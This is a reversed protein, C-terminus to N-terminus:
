EPLSVARLRKAATEPSVPNTFIGSGMEFGAIRSIRPIIAVYWHYHPVDAEDTPASRISLNFDPDGVGERLRMLMRALVTALDDIEADTIADFSAAHREPFIWQHYPTLAGFPVFGAFAGSDEVIREGSRREDALVECFLCRGVEARFRHGDEMRMRVQPPVIPAAVIQSHPHQLSTGARVGHNRFITIHRVYDLAGLDAYRDRYVRIVEALHDRDISAPQLDHRPHDIVVEHHGAADMSLFMGESKRDISGDPRLAPYKNPVVRIRWNGDEDERRDIDEVLPDENGPCFPCEDRYKETPREPRKGSSHFDNPRGAREEALIVWDRTVPNFRMQSM